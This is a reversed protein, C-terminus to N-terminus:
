LIKSDNITALQMVNTQCSFLGEVSPFSLGVLWKASQNLLSDEEVYSSCSYPWNRSLFIENRESFNSRQSLFLMKYGLSGWSWCSPNLREFFTSPNAISDIILFFAFNEEGSCKSAFIRERELLINVQPGEGSYLSTIVKDLLGVDLKEKFNLLKAAQGELGNVAVSNM